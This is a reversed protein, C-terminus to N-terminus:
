GASSRIGPSWEPQSAAVWVWSGARNEGRWAGVVCATGQVWCSGPVAETVEPGKDERRGGDYWKGFIRKFTKKESFDKRIVIQFMM